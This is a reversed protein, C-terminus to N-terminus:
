LRVRGISRDLFQGSKDLDVSLASGGLHNRRPIMRGGPGPLSGALILGLLGALGMRFIAAPDPIAARMRSPGTAASRITAAASISISKSITPPVVATHATAAPPM